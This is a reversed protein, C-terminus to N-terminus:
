NNLIVIVCLSRRQDNLIELMALARPCDPYIGPATLEGIKCDSPVAASWPQSKSGLAVVGSEWFALKSLQAVPGDSCFETLFWLDPTRFGLKKQM